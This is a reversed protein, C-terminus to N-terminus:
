VSKETQKTAAKRKYTALQEPSVSTINAVVMTGKHVINYGGAVCALIEFTGKYLLDTSIM